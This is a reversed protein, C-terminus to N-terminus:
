SQLAIELNAMSPTITYNLNSTNVDKYKPPIAVRKPQEPASLGQSKAANPTARAGGAAILSETVAVKVEGPMVDTAVFTGDPQINATAMRDGTGHFRVVGSTLPKGNLTVVGSVNQPKQGSCGPAAALVAAVGAVTLLRRRTLTTTSLM